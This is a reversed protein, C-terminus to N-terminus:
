KEFREENGDLSTRQKSGKWVRRREGNTARLITENKQPTKEKEKEEEEEEEEERIAIQFARGLADDFIERSSIPFLM